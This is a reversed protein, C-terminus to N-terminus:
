AERVNIDSAYIPYSEDPDGFFEWALLRLYNANHLMTLQEHTTITLQVDRVRDMRRQEAQSNGVAIKAALVVRIPLPSQATRGQTRQAREIVDRAMRREAIQRQEAPSLNRLTPATPTRRQGATTTYRQLNRTFSKYATTGPQHGAAVALRGNASLREYAPSGPAYSKNTAM